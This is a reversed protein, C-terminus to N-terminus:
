RPTSSRPPALSSCCAPRRQWGPRRGVAGVPEGYHKILMAYDIDAGFSEEVAQLYPKHGDSTLQVRNALRMALDGIFAHAAYADRAGIYFSPIMRATAGIEGFLRRLVEVIRL